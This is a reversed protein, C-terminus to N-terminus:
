APESVRREAFAAFLRAAKVLTEEYEEDADSLLTIGGGVAFELADDEAVITRIAINLAMAGDFGIWGIAGCYEGRSRGEIAAIIEMARLKPAGTISGGPFSAAFLDLADAGPRLTGTVASVLHHLGAYSEVACLTPVTVSDADCVRSLDNRLLDVIMVNEARNKASAVLAAAAARDAVPDDVRRATGKIPRTEVRRGDSRLFLEPSSSLITRRGQDLYAAFPAPNAARLQRYIAWPTAGAPMPALFRQAINAQYVDGDRILDRVREVAAHHADRGAAARWSVRLPPAGAAAPQRLLAEFADLREDARARQAAAGAAPHGSAILWCRRGRHDFALVVDHFALHLDDTVRPAPPRRNELGWGFEYSVAGVAGGQFPPLGEIPDIPYHKLCARLAHLPAAALADENWRPVGQQDVVFRGFPDACVYSYRGLTDHRMASDLMALGPLAALRAAAEIPEMWGLRRTWMEGDWEAAREAM